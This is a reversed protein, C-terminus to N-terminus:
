ICERVQNTLRPFIVKDQIRLVFIDNVVSYSASNSPSPQSVESEDNNEEASVKKSVM